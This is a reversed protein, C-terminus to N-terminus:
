SQRLMIKEEDLKVGFYNLKDIIMKRVPVSNEGIGATFVIADVGGMEAVYQGVYKVVRNIFIRIAM